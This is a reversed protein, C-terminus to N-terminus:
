TLLAVLAARSSIRVFITSYGDRIARLLHRMLAFYNPVNTASLVHAEINPSRFRPTANGKEVLLRIQIGRAALEELLNTVHAYHSADSESYRNLVYTLKRPQALAQSINTLSEATATTM